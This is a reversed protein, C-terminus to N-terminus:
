VSQLSSHVHRLIGGSGTESPAKTLKQVEAKLQVIQSDKAQLARKLAANEQLLREVETMALKSGDGPQGIGVGLSTAVERVAIDLAFIKPLQQEKDSQNTVQVDKASLKTHAVTATVQSWEEVLALKLMDPAGHICQIVYRPAAQSASVLGNGSARQM